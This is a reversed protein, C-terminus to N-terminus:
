LTAAQRRIGHMDELTSESREVAERWCQYRGKWERREVLAGGLEVADRIAIRAGEGGLIPMTHAADGILVVGLEREILSSEEADLLSSRMLWHIIREERVQDVTFTEAFPSPLDLTPTLQAIESIFHSSLDPSQGPTRAPHHLPDEGSAHAPRSYIYSISAESKHEDYSNIQIHFLANGKLCRIITEGPKFHSAYVSKWVDKTIARTGRFVVFPLIKLQSLTSFIQRRIPSHSGTTDVIMSQSDLEIAPLSEDKWIVAKKELTEIRSVEHSWKIHEDLGERLLQELKSGLVITLVILSDFM